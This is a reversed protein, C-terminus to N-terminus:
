IKIIKRSFSSGLTLTHHVQFTLELRTHSKTTPINALFDLKLIINISGVRM